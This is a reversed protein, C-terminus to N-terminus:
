DENERRDFQDKKQPPFDQDPIVLTQPAKPVMIHSHICHPQCLTTSITAAATM